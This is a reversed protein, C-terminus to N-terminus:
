TQSISNTPPVNMKLKRLQEVGTEDVLIADDFHLALVVDEIALVDVDVIACGCDMQVLVFFKM